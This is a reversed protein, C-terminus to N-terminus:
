YACILRPKRQPLHGKEWGEMRDKSRFDIYGVYM